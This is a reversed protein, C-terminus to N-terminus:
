IKQDKKCFGLKFDVDSGGGKLNLCNKVWLAPFSRGFYIRFKLIFMCCGNKLRPLLIALLFPSFKELGLGVFSARLAREDDGGNKVM